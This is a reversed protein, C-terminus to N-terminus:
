RCSKCQTGTVFPNPLPSPLPSGNQAFYKVTMGTQGNLITADFSSTNFPYKGDQVLPDIEDDCTTTLLQFLSHKRCIMLLLSFPQKM